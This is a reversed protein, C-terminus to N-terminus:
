GLSRVWRLCLSSVPCQFALQCALLLLLKCQVPASCQETMHLSNMLARARSAHRRNGAASDYFRLNSFVELISDLWGGLVVKGVLGYGSTGCRCTKKFVELSPSEIVERPLRNWHRVLPLHLHTPRVLPLFSSLHRRSTFLQLVTPKDCARPCLM